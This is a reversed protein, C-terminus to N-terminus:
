DSSDSENKLIEQMSEGWAEWEKIIAHQKILMKAMEQVSKVPQSETKEPMQQLALELAPSIGFESEEKAPTSKCSLSLLACCLILLILFKKM